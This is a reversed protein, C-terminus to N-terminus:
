GRDAERVARCFEAILAPDKVGRQREVGASTDVGFPRVARIAAAVNAPTLGGLIVPKRTAAVARALGAWDPEDPCDILIADVEEVADWRALDAALDAPHYRVGKILGPGCQRVLQTDESGSFQSVTTPCREELDSFADLSPNVFVGVSAIFPPLTGIIAWAEEPEVQRPSGRVFAFGVADAGESAAARAIEADRVGCVKIRTRVSM